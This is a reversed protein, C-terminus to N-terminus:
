SPDGGSQIAKPVGPTTPPAQSTWPNPLVVGEPTYQVLEGEMNLVELVGGCPAAAMCLVARAQLPEAELTTVTRQTPLSGEGTASTKDGAIKPGGLTLQHLHTLVGEANMATCAGPVHHIMKETLQMALKREVVNRAPALFQAMETLMGAALFAQGLDPRGEVLRGIVGVIHARVNANAKKHVGNLPSKFAVGLATVLPGACDAAAIEAEARPDRIILHLLALVALAANDSLSTIRLLTPVGGAALMEDLAQPDPEGDPGGNRVLLTLACVM